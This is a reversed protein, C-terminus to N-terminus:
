RRASRKCDQESFDLNLVAMMKLTTEFFIVLRHQKEVPDPKCM